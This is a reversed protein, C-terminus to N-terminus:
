VLIALCLRRLRFVYLVAGFLRDFFSAVSQGLQDVDRCGLIPSVALSRGIDYDVSCCDEFFHRHGVQQEKLFLQDIQVCEDTLKRHEVSGFLPPPVLVCVAM